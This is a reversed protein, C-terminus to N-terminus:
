PRAGLSRGAQAQARAAQPAATETVRMPAGPERADPRRLYLPEPALLALGAPRGARAAAPAVADGALLRATVVGARPGTCPGPGTGATIGALDARDAGADRLAATVALAPLEAHRGSDVTTAGALVRVGDHLAVTVSPTATDLGLLLV